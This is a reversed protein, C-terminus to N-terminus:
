VAQGSWPTGRCARGRIVKTLHHDHHDYIMIIMIIKIDFIVTINFSIIVVELLINLFEAAAFGEGSEGTTTWQLAPTPLNSDDDDDDDDDYHNCVMMIIM